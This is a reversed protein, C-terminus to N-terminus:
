EGRRGTRRRSPTRGRRGRPAGRADGPLRARHRPRAASAVGPADVRERDPRSPRARPASSPRPSRVSRRVPRPARIPSRRSRDRTARSAFRRTSRYRASSPWRWRRPWGGAVMAASSTSTSAAPCAMGSMNEVVGLVPTNVREFMRIARRVDGTSMQQPTTVMVAGDVDVTQVLSLQADGTGPPLDVILYDLEGWEVQELFQRLIGSVLPGRMIAPQEEDMLFGLSILRVGHAELPVIMESGKAGTVKPKETTGFLLPVDPGYVDADILGVRHGDAALATALNAAVTSKGVGGKGSSVAIVHEFGKRRDPDPTPAPVSGPKLGGGGGGPSPARTGHQPKQRSAQLSEPLKVDIKVGSVGDIERVVARADRVLTGPDERRLVFRFHVRGDDDVRLDQVQKGALVDEGTRPNEIDRLADLVADLRDQNAAM